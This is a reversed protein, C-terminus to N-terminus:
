IRKQYFLLYAVTFYGLRFAAHLPAQALKILQLNNVNILLTKFSLAIVFYFLTKVAPTYLMNTQDEIM